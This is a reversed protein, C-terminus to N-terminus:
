TYAFIVENLMKAGIPWFIEGPAKNGIDPDKSGFFTGVAPCPQLYMDVCVGVGACVGVEVGDGVGRRVGATVGVVVGPGASSADFGVGTVFVSTVGDGFSANGISAGTATTIIIATAKNLLLNIPSYPPCVPEL